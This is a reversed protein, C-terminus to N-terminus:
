QFVYLCVYLNVSPCIYPSLSLPFIVSSQLNVNAGYQLLLEVVDKHGALSSIHLSSNGKQICM